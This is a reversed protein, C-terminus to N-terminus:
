SVGERFLLDLYTPLFLLLFLERNNFTGPIAIVVVVTHPPLRRQVNVSRNETKVAVVTCRDSCGFRRRSLLLLLLRLLSLLSLVRNM